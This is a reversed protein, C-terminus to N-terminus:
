GVAIEGGVHLGLPLGPPLNTTRRHHRDAACPRAASEGTPDPSPSRLPSHAGCPKPKIAAHPYRGRWIRRRRRIQWGCKGSLGCGLAWVSRWGQAILDAALQPLQEASISGTEDDGPDRRSKALRSRHYADWAAADTWDDPMPVERRKAM